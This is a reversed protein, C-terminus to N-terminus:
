RQSDSPAYSGTAMTRRARRSFIEGSQRAERPLRTCSGTRQLRKFSSLEIARDLQAASPSMLLFRTLKEFTTKPEALMDEYRMVHIARHPRRTWSEVHESWTGYIEYVSKETVNTEYGKRAMHEIAVDVDEDMHHAFSIAIDLPNRVVYIAGSTVGFNISPFGRDDVLAHHTKVIALGATAAAIDAQVKPRTAAIQARNENTPQVGMHRRYIEAQIDWTTFENIQNIDYGEERGELMGFLNHLFTRTWTNGSKPYSALWLIGHTPSVGRDTSPPM